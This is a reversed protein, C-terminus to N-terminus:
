KRFSKKMKHTHTSIHHCTHTHTHAHVHAHMCTHRHTFTHVFSHVWAHVGTHSPMHVHICLHLLHSDVYSCTHVYRYAHIWCPTHTCVLKMQLCNGFIQSKMLFSLDACFNVSLVFSTWCACSDNHWHCSDHMYNEYKATNTCYCHLIHLYCPCNGHRIIGSWSQLLSGFQTVFITARRMCHIHFGENTTPKCLCSFAVYIFAVHSRIIVVVSFVMIIPHFNGHKDWIESQRLTFDPILMSIELGVM